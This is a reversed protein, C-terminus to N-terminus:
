QIVVVKKVTIRDGSFPPVRASRMKSAICGGTTTGAFPPGNVNANIARGSNAFTVTVNAVGSPDDPKRCSSARAAASSLAASAAATNFPGVAEKPPEPEAPKAPEPKAPAPSPAAPRPSAPPKYVARAATPPESHEPVSKEDEAPAAEEEANATAEPEAASAPPEPATTPAASPVAAAAAASTSTSPAVAAPSVATQRGLYFMGVATAGILLLVLFWKGGSKRPPPALSPDDPALSDLQTVAPAVSRDRLPPRPRPAHPARLPATPADTEPMDFADKHTDDGVDFISHPASPPRAPPLEAVVSELASSPLSEIADSNLSIPDDDRLSVGPMPATKTDSPMSPFLPGATMAPPRVSELLNEDLDSEDELNGVRPSPVASSLGRAAGPHPAGTGILTSRPVPSHAVPRPGPTPPGPMPPGPMPPGPMPPGPMPPGPKATFGGMVTKKKDVATKGVREIATKLASIESIPLWDPMGDRWVITDMDIEGRRLAQYIQPPTMERDDDDAYSVLWLSDGLDDPSHNTPRTPVDEHM